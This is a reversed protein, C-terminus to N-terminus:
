QPPFRVRAAFVTDLGGADYGGGTVYMFDGHVVVRHATRGQPLAGVSRWAGITGDSAVQAAVVDPRGAGTLVQDKGGVVFVWDDVGVAQGFATPKPLSAVALTKTLAGSADLRGGAGDAVVANGNKTSDYGGLSYAADGDPLTVFAYQPHGRFGKAVTSTAFGTLSGGQLSARLISVDDGADPLRVQFARLVGSKVTASSYPIRVGAPLAGADEWPSLKGDDGITARRVGAKTTEDDFIGDLLWVDDGDAAATCSSVPGRTRGALQWPGLSGDAEFRAAHVEDTSVFASAGKPKYNGGIVVLYKTTAVTCHNGRPTPMPALVQVDGLAGTARAAPPAPAPAPKAAEGEGGGSSSSCSFLLCMAGMGLRKM